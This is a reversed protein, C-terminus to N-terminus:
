LLTLEVLNSVRRLVASGGRQGRLALVVERRERVAVREVVGRVVVVVRVSRGMGVHGSHSVNGLALQGLALVPDLVRRQPRM